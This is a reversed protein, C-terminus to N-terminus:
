VRGYIYENLFHITYEHNSTQYANLDGISILGALQGQGDVVPLHRIRRDKFVSRVEDLPTDPQCCVVESTMVDRVKTTAPDRRQAVVRHLVDRESFIGLVRGKECVVLCGIKHENMTLAADLVSTQPETSMVRSGKITLLDNVTVTDAM